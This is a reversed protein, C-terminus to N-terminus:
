SEEQDLQWGDGPKPIIHKRTLQAALRFFRQVQIVRTFCAIAWGINSLAPLLALTPFLILLALGYVLTGVGILGWGFQYLGLGKELRQRWFGGFLAVIGGIALNAAWLHVAWDPLLQQVSNPPPLGIVYLVGVLCVAILWYLEFPNISMQVAILGM